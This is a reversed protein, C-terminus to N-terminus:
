PNEDQGRTTPNLEAFRMQKYCNSCQNFVHNLDYCDYDNPSNLQDPILTVEQRRAGAVLERAQQMIAQEVAERTVLLSYPGSKSVPYDQIADRYKTLQEKLGEEFAELSPNPPQADVM